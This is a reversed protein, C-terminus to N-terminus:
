FSFFVVVLLASLLFILNAKQRLSLEGRIKRWTAPIERLAQPLFVTWPMLWLVLLGWFIFLPVTDYGPPVRKNVYRLFQENVFYFWLFGRVPGQSPNRLAALIHWPAAILLFVISSSVLRLKLLRALDGTLLLYLVVTSIPFVLGILSKTLVNLACAAAFGWCALRSPPEEELSQLFFSFGVTLWLGVMVDPIQF